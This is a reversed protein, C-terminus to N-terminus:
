VDLDAAIGKGFSALLSSGTGALWHPLACADRTRLMCHFREMLDRAVAVRVAPCSDRPGPRLRGLGVPRNMSLGCSGHSGDAQPESIVEKGYVTGFGARM